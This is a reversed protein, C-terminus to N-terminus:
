NQMNNVLSSVGFFIMSVIYILVLIYGYVKFSRKRIAFPVALFTFAQIVSCIVITRNRIQSELDFQQGIFGAMFYIAAFVVLTGCFILLTNSQVDKKGDLRNGCNSCYLAEEENEHSCKTCIM